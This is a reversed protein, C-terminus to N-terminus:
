RADETAEHAHHGKKLEARARRVGTDWLSWHNLVCLGWQPGDWNYRYMSVPGMKLGRDPGNTWRKVTWWHYHTQQM